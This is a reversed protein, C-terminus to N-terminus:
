MTGKVTYVVECQSNVELTQRDYVTGDCDIFFDQPDEFVEFVFNYISIEM